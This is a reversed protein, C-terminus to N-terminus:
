VRGARCVGSVVLNSHRKLMVEMADQPSDAFIGQSFDLYREGEAIFGIVTFLMM